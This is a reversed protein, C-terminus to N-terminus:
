FPKLARELAKDIMQLNNADLSEILETNDAVINYKKNLHSALTLYRKALKYDGVAIYAFGLKAYIFPYANPNSAIMRLLKICYDYDQNVYALNAEDMLGKYNATDLDCYRLVLINDNDGIIMKSIYPIDKIEDLINRIKEDDMEEFIFLGDRKVVDLVKILSSKRQRANIEKVLDNLILYFYNDTLDKFKNNTIVINLAEEYDHLLLASKLDSSYGEEKKPTKGTTRINIIEKAILLYYKSSLNLEHMKAEEDLLFILEEYNRDIVLESIKTHTATQRKKAKYLLNVLEPTYVLKDNDHLLQLNIIASYFKQNIIDEIIISKFTDDNINIDLDNLKLKKVIDKYEQPLDLIYSFLLLYTNYIKRNNIDRYYIFDFYNFAEKFNKTKLELYFLRKYVDLNQANIELCRLFCLKAKNYYRKSVLTNGYDYLGQLDNFIYRGRKYRELINKNVLNTLDNKKFGYNQLQKTTLPDEKIVGEYLNILNNTNIM